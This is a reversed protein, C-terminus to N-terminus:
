VGHSVQTDTVRLWALCCCVIPTLVFWSYKIVAGISEFSEFDLNWSVDHVEGRLLAAIGGFEGSFFLLFTVLALLSLLMNIIFVAIVTKFWRLKKFWLGGLFFIPQMVFFGILADGVMPSLPNFLENTRGFLLMNLGEILLSTVTVFLLVQIIYIVTVNLYRTIIKELASAPILLWAENKRKDNLESFALSNVISGGILLFGGFMGYYFGMQQHGFGAAPISNLLFLITFVAFVLLYDRSDTVMDNRILLGLRKWNFQENM